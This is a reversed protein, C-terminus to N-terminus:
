QQKREITTTTQRTLICFWTGCGIVLTTAIVIFTTLM